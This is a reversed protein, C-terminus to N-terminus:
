SVEPAPEAREPRTPGSAGELATVQGGSFEGRLEVPLNGRGHVSRLEFTADDGRGRATGALVQHGSPRYVGLELADGKGPWALALWNVSYTGQAPSRYAVLGALTPRDPTVPEPGVAVLFREQACDIRFTGAQTLQVGYTDQRLDQFAAAAEDAALARQSVPVRGRDALALIEAQASDPPEYGARGARFAVVTRSFRAQQGVADDRDALPSLPEIAAASGIKALAGAAAVLITPESAETLASVLANEATPGAGGLQSAAAARLTVDEDENALVQALAKTAGAGRAAVLAGMASVRFERNAAGQVTAELEKLDRADLQRLTAPSVGHEAAFVEQLHESV